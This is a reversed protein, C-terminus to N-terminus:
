RTVSQAWIGGNAASSKKGRMVSSYILYGLLIAALVAFVVLLAIAWPDITTSTPPTSGTDGVGIGGGLAHGGMPFGIPGVPGM